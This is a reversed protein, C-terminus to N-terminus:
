MPIGITWKPYSLICHWPSQMTQPDIQATHLNMRKFTESVNDHAAPTRMAPETNNAEFRAYFTNLENQLSANTHAVCSSKGKYNMISNWLHSLRLLTIGSKSPRSPHKVLAPTLTSSSPHCKDLSPNHSSQPLPSLQSPCIVDRIHIRYVLSALNAVSRQGAMVKTKLHRLFFSIQFFKISLSSFINQPM